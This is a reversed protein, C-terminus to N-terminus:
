EGDGDVVGMMIVEWTMLAIMENNGMGGTSTPEHGSQRYGEGSQYGTLNRARGRLVMRKDGTMNM